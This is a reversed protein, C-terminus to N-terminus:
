ERDPFLQQYTFRQCLKNALNLCKASIANEVNPTSTEIIEKHSSGLAQSIADQITKDFNRSQFKVKFDKIDLKTTMSSFYMYQNGKREILQYNVRVKAGVDTSTLTIPGGGVIPVLIRATVNYDAILKVEGFNLDVDIQQKELDMHVSNIHYTPLGYVKINSGYAKFNPMDALKVKDMIFPESPPLDLEPVGKRLTEALENVSNIICQDLNPNRKGCVHLYSPIEDSACSAVAAFLLLVKLFM